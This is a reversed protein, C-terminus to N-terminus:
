QGLILTPPYTRSVRLFVLCRDLSLICDWFSLSALATMARGIIIDMTRPAHSLDALGQKTADEVLPAAQTLLARAMARRHAAAQIQLLVRLVCRMQSLEAFLTLQRHSCRASPLMVRQLAACYWHELCANTSCGQMEM